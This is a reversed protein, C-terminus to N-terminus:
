HWNGSDFLKWGSPVSPTSKGLVVSSSVTQKSLLYKKAVTSLQEGEVSLLRTRYQRHVDDTLRNLFWRNGRNGPSVPADIRSFLRLKAEDVDEDSFSGDVAWQASKDFATISDFPRPDRYSFFSFLGGSMKTGSGYAGGKERIEKHLFKSELLQALVKLAPFDEHVFPVTRCAKGAFNVAFPMEVYACSSTPEFESEEVHGPPDYRNSPLSDLFGELILEMESVREPVVNIACRISTSDLVHAAIQALKSALEAGDGDVLGNLFSVQSLGDFQEGIRGVPTLGSSARSIALGHGNDSLVSALEQARMKLLAIVRDVDEFNPTNFLDQWLGFMYPTNQDLCYSSFVIGQEYGDLSDRGPILHPSTSLGGTHEEIEQAMEQYDMNDAGIKTIVYCFLPVYPLLDASLSTLSSVARFYTVGNTPQPFIHVPVGLPEVVVFDTNETDLSIDSVKLSPLCSTDQKENQHAQLSLGSEYLDKKDDDSLDVTLKSINEAEKRERAAIFDTDPEMTLTMQHLNDRFYRKLKDQLFTPSAALCEKFKSVNANVQLGAIPDLGHIWSSLIPEALHLGFSASQHKVGLEIRHLVSKIRTEDFGTKIVDDITAVIIERVKGVDSKSIGQLGISFYAEKCHGNSGSGPAFDSGINSAILSQYFPSTPGDTLLSCLINVVFAEFPDLSGLLFAVAVTSQKLREVAMLDPPCSIAAERPTEWKSEIARRLQESSTSPMREFNRLALDHLTELHDRLPINGYTYFKANSPHYHRRHFQRLADWTLTPIALPDGGFEKSYVHTPLLHQQVGLRFLTDADGYVGKMENYVVGKITLPSTSDTVVEHELRWGEQRFDLEELRPFFVADLYVSLLNKYDQRNQTMFPYMTRDPMTWANMYSALTRGLMNFFPDRCPYKASGCLVTHELIHSVGTDDVPITPFAVSFVNTSDPRDIHLHQAGTKEHVLEVAILHFEPVATAKVIKYGYVLSGIPYKDRNPENANSIPRKSAVSRLSSLPTKSLRRM